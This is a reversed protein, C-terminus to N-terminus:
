GRTSEGSPPVVIDGAFPFVSLFVRGLPCRNVCGGGPFMAAARGGLGSAPCRAGSEFLKSLFVLVTTDCKKLRSMVLSLSDTSM